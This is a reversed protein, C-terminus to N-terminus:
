TTDSPGAFPGAPAPAEGRICLASVASGSSPQSREPPLPLLATPCPRPGRRYTPPTGSSTCTIM